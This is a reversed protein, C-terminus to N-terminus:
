IQFDIIIFGAKQVRTTCQFTIHLITLDLIFTICTLFLINKKKKLLLFRPLVNKM